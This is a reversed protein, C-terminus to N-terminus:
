EEYKSGVFAERATAFNNSNGKCSKYHKCDFNLTAIRNVTYYDKLKSLM